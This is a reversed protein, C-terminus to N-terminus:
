ESEKLERLASAVAADVTWSFDGIELFKPDFCQWKEEMPFWTCRYGDPLTAMVALRHKSEKDLDM